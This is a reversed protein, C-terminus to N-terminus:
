KFIGDVAEQAFAGTTLYKEIQRIALIHIGREQADDDTEILPHPFDAIEGNHFRPLSVGECCDITQYVDDIVASIEGVFHSGAVDHRGPIRFRDQFGVFVKHIKGFFVSSFECQEGSHQFFFDGALEPEITL